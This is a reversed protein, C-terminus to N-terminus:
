VFQPYGKTNTPSLKNKNSASKNNDVDISKKEGKVALEDWWNWDSIIDNTRFFFPFFLRKYTM